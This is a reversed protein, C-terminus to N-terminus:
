RFWEIVKQFRTADVCQTTGEKSRTAICRPRPLMSLCSANGPAQAKEQKAAWNAAHLVARSTIFSMASRPRNTSMPHHVAPLGQKPSEALLPTPPCLMHKKKRKSPHLAFSEPNQKVGKLRCVAKIAPDVLTWRSQPHPHPHASFASYLCLM